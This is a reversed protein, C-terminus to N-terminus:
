SYECISFLLGRITIVSSQTIMQLFYKLGDLAKSLVSNHSGRFCSLRSVM